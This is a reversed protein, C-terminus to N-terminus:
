LRRLIQRSFAMAVLFAVSAMGILLVRLLEYSVLAGLVLVACVYLAVVAFLTAVYRLVVRVDATAGTSRSV